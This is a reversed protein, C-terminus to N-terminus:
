LARQCGRKVIGGSTLLEFRRNCFEARDPVLNSFHRNPYEGGFAREVAGSGPYVLLLVVQLAAPLDKASAKSPAASSYAM